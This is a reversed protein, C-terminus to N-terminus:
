PWLYFRFNFNNREEIHESDGKIIQSILAALCLLISIDWYIIKKYYTLGDYDEIAHVLINEITTKKKEAKHM